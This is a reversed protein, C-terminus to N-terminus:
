AFDSEDITRNFDALNAVLRLQDSRWYRMGSRGHRDSFRSCCSLETLIGGFLGTPCIEPSGWKLDSSSPEALDHLFMLWVPFPTEKTIQLYDQYHHDDIGTDWSKTKRYWSFRTKWKAEVWVVKAPGFVLLDTVILNRGKPMLLRPGKDNENEIEYAPLVANGRALLYKAIRNEAAMGLALQQQFSM